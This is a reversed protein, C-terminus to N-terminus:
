GKTEDELDELTFDKKFLRKDEHYAGDRTDLHLGWWYIIIGGKKFESISLAARTLEKIDVNDPRKVDVATGRPHQSTDKSHIERNHKLCRFGSNIILKIIPGPQSLKDHLEQLAEVLGREIVASGNCCDSGRCAFEGRLFNKSLRESHYEASM